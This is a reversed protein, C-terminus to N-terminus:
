EIQSKSKIKPNEMPDGVRIKAFPGSHPASQVSLNDLQVITIM